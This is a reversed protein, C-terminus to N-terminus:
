LEHHRTVLSHIEKQVKRAEESAGVEQFLTLAATYADLAASTKRCKREMAGLEFSTEAANLKNNLERNLRLSTQFYSSALAYAKLDRSIMGKLKYSDAQGLRDGCREFLGIAQSVLKLALALDSSRYYANAKGFVATAMVPLLDKKTGLFYSLNFEKIADTNMGRQLHSMGINHHLQALRRVDGLYEFYSLARRYHGLAEAYEGRINLLIGLNMLATGTLEKQDSEEFVSYAKQFFKRALTLNGQEAYNTGLINDVRGVSVREKMSTFMSRSRVLDARSEKWQGLSSHVEGRRLLAEARNVSQRRPKATKEEMSLVLSYMEVARQTDGTTKFIDGIELLVPPVAEGPLATQCLTILQNLYENDTVTGAHNAVRRTDRSNGFSAQQFYQVKQMDKVLGTVNRSGCHRKVVNIIQDKAQLTAM